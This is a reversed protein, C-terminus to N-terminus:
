TIMMMKGRFSTSFVAAVIFLQQQQESSCICSRITQAVFQELTRMSRCTHICEFKSHHLRFDSYLFQNGCNSLLSSLNCMGKESARERWGKSERGRESARSKELYLYHLFPLTYTTSHLTAVVVVVAAAAVYVPSPM